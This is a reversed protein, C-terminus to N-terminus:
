CLLGWGWPHPNEKAIHYIYIDCRRGTL